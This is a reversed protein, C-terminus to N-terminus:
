IGNGSVILKIIKFLHSFFTKCVSNYKSFKELYIIFIYYKLYYEILYWNMIQIEYILNFFIKKLYAIRNSISIFDM